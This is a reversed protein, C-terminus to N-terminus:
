ALLHALDAERVVRSQPGEHQVAISAAAQGWKLATPMDNGQYLAAYWGSRMADGAGTPDVANQVPFADMHLPKTKATYLSAGRKGRTIVVTDVHDLFQVPDGYSLYQCAVKLEDENLFLADSRDLLREFRKADYVYRLEQGPDLAVPIGQKRAAQAIGMYADPNGTAFHLWGTLDELLTDQPPNDAMQGMPGQDMCYSQRGEDDTLIYCTPTRGGEVIDLHDLSVGDGLLLDRWDAPLDDGVRSWLRVPVGLGGAHRAINAATGGWVHRRDLVPSSAGPVPLEKVRLQIDINTHGCVALYAPNPSM